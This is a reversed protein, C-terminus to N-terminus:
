LKSSQQSDDDLVFYWKVGIMNTWGDGCLGERSAAELMKNFREKGRVKLTISELGEAQQEVGPIFQLDANTFKLKSSETPIGFLDHWQKTATETDTNGSALRCTASLFGLHDNRAMIASYREYESGCAHWPSFPTALPTPNSPTIAHSDLEPMMGGPIGKPHYQVCVVDDHEYGFIVKSLSRSEIYQRRAGADFNQMIIMYGGEGRKQLLRGATTGPKFPAVVEIVDGGVAILFNKLGWQAVM